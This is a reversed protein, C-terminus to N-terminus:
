LAVDLHWAAKSRGVPALTHIHTGVLGAPHKGQFLATDVGDVTPANVDPGHCFWVKGDTLKRLVKLGTELGKGDGIRTSMSGGLPHTNTATVFVANCTDSKGPVRSFPRTRIATWLGSELLLNVVADRDLEDVAGSTYNTFTVQDGEGNIAAESLQIVLSRFARKEGRNIAMVRGAAPATFIVGEARRAEFLAQGRKVEDGVSVLMRPKMFPFDDSMVAVRGVRRGEEVMEAPQGTIPLDLGAKVNHEAM